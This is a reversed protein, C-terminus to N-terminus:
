IYTYIIIPKLLSIPWSSERVNELHPQENISRLKARAAFRSSRLTAIKARTKWTKRNPKIERPDRVEIWLDPNQRKTECDRVRRKEPIWQGQEIEEISGREARSAVIM